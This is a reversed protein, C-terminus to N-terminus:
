KGQMMLDLVHFAHLPHFSTRLGAAEAVKREAEDEGVYVCRSAPEGAREAARQFLEKHTKDIKEVSSFLLLGQDFHDLLAAKALLARMSDLSEKGTNSIVGLRPAATTQKLKNLVEPVFPLAKLQLSNDPTPVSTVLTDGLDFFVAISM